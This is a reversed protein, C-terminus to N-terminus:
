AALKRLAIVFEEVEEAYEIGSAIRYAIGDHLCQLSILASEDDTTIVEENLLTDIAANFRGDLEIRQPMTLAVGIACPGSYKCVSSGGNTLNQFQLEGRHFAELAKQAVTKIPLHIPM